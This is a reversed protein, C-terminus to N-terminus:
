LDNCDVSAYETVIYDDVKHDPAIFIPVESVQMIDTATNARATRATM